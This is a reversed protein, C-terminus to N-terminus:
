TFLAALANPNYEATFEISEAPSPPTLTLHFRIIGDALDVTPNDDTRFEIKGDVLAGTAILGNIFSQVTGVVSDILRRNGPQDVDRQVTLVVTNEIWNFM